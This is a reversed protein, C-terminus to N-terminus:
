YRSSFVPITEVVFATLSARLASTLDETSDLIEKLVSTANDKISFYLDVSM